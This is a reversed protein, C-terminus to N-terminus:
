KRRGKQGIYDYAIHGIQVTTSAGLWPGVEELYQEGKAKIKGERELCVQKTVM